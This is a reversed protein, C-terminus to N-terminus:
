AGAARSDFIVREIPGAAPDEVIIENLDFDHPLPEAQPLGAQPPGAQQYADEIAEILGEAQPPDQMARLYILFWVLQGFAFAELVLRWLAREEKDAWALLSFCAIPALLLALYTKHTGEIMRKILRMYSLGAAVGLPGIYLLRALRQKRTEQAQHATLAANQAKQTQQTAATPANRMERQEEVQETKLGTTNRAERAQNEDKRLLHTNKLDGQSRLGVAAILMILEAVCAAFFLPRKKM